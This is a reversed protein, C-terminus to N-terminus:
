FFYELGAGVVVVDADGKGRAAIFEGEEGDNNPIVFFTDNDLDASNYGAYLHANLNNLIAYQGGIVLQDSDNNDFGSLNETKNYQIYASAPRAFNDLGMKASVILGDETSRGDYDAEQYLVSTTLPLNVINSMDVSVVGRLIDGDISMDKDYAVGGSIGTGADYNLAAGFGSDGNDSFTEDAGYQLTLDLPLDNYKPAFWIISNNVRSGDTLTLAEAVNGGNLSSAGLNDWYGKNVAVSNLVYDTVSYNRGFRVQGYQDNALGLYTDRANLTDRDGDIDISYELQYVIDTNATAAESGKVGLRSIHSNVQVSDEDNQIRQGEVGEIADMQVDLDANVYDLALFAKGYVTPAANAASVSLAAVATALLLKKM